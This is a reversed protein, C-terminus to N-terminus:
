VQCLCNMMMFLSPGLGHLPLAKGFLGEQKRLGTSGGAGTGEGGAGACAKAPFESAVNRSANQPSSLVRRHCLLMVKNCM